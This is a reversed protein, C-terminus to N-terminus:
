PFRRYNYHFSCNWCDCKNCLTPPFDELRKCTEKESITFNLCKLLSLATDYIRVEDLKIKSHNAAVVAKIEEAPPQTTNLDVAGLVLGAVTPSISGSTSVSSVEVGDLIFNEPVVTLLRPLMIGNIITSPSSNNSSGSQYAGAGDLNLSLGNDRREGTAM